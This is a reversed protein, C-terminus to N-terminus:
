RRRGVDGYLKDTLARIGNGRASTAQLGVNAVLVPRLGCASCIAAEVDEQLPGLAIPPKHEREAHSQSATLQRHRAKWRQHIAGLM